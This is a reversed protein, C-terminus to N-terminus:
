PNVFGVHRPFPLFDCVTQRRSSRHHYNASHQLRTCRAEICLINGNFFWITRFSFFVGISFRRLREQQGFVSTQAINEESISGIGNSAASFLFASFFLLSVGKTKNEFQISSYETESPRTALVTAQRRRRMPQKYHIWISSFRQSPWEDWGAIRQSAHLLRSISSCEVRQFLEGHTKRSTSPFRRHGHSQGLSLLTDVHTRSWLLDSLRHRKQFGGSWSPDIRCRSQLSSQHTLSFSLSSEEYREIFRTTMFLIRGETSIMGDLSNLLGSLTLPKM